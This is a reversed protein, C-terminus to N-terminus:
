GLYYWIAFMILLTCAAGIYFIIIDKASRREIFSIATRGLGIGNAADLLRRKTGKLFSRQDRLNELIHAGQALFSDLQSDANRVFDNERMNFDDWQSRNPQFLPDQNRTRIDQGAMLDSRLTTTTRESAKNKSVEFHQRLSKSQRRLDACRAEAKEQKASNLEGKSLQEYDDITRNLAALSAAIQGTLANSVISNEDDLKSLDEKVKNIQRTAQSSVANM